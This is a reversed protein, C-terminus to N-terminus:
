CPHQLILKLGLSLVKAGNKLFTQFSDNSSGSLKGRSPKEHLPTLGWFTNVLSTRTLNKQGPDSELIDGARVGFVHGMFVATCDNVHAVAQLDAKHKEM